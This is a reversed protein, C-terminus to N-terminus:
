VQPGIRVPAYHEEVYEEEEGTLLLYSVLWVLADLRDPSEDEGPVWTVLQDELEPFVGVHHVYPEAYDEEDPNGYLAAVPQARVQKGRSAHVAHFPVWPNEAHIVAAVMEGGNNVEGVIIDASYEEYKAVARRGWTAPDVHCTADELVYVRGDIGLGGIIMGTDDADPKSTAAPDLAVAVRVLEPARDVRCAELQRMTWLAGAVEEVLKGELEQAGLATGQYRKITKAKWAPNLHPNDHITGHTLVVGELSRIRRYARTYRPTTSAISHPRDGLRLGFEAQAWAAELQRNAAMEEWWDLHRNGGARLREVDNPSHTGLVLAESGNPWIVKSGGPASPLFVVEPDVSKLGSPGDICAEVADGYTPAIIRGRAGPNARMYAAFYRACAETKGAGRGAELIWLDWDGDPPIQHPELPPRGEPEWPTPDPFLRDILLETTGPLLQM